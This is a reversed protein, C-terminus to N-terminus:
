LIDSLRSGASDRNCVNKIPFRSLCGPWFCFFRFIIDYFHFGHWPVHEMQTALAATFDTNLWKHLAVIFEAGGMIWLMDFGRLADLSYLRQNNM